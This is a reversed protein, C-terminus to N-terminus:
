SRLYSTSEMCLVAVTSIRVGATGQGAACTPRSQEARDADKGVRTRRFFINTNIVEMSGFKVGAQEKRNRKAKQM